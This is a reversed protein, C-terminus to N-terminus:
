NNSDNKKYKKNKQLYPYNLSVGEAPLRLSSDNGSQCTKSVFLSHLMRILSLLFDWLGEHSDSAVSPLTQQSELDNEQRQSEEEM